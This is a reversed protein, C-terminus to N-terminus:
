GFNFPVINVDIMGVGGKARAGYFAKLRETVMDNHGFGGANGFPAMFLRNRIDVNGIRIPEFLKKLEVM